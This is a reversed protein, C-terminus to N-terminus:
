YPLYEKLYYFNSSSIIISAIIYKRYPEINKRTVNLKEEIMKLPINKTQLFYTKAEQDNIIFKVVDNIMKRKAKHKPSSKVLDKFSISYNALKDNLIEIEERLDFAYENLESKDIAVDALKYNERDESDFIPEDASFKKNARFYDYIRNRIVLKAFSLFSGRGDFTNIAHDFAILAIQLEDDIGYEVRRGIVKYVCSAIFPKYKDIFQNRKMSDNKILNIDVM